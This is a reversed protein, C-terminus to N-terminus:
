GHLGGRRLLGHDLGVLRQHARLTFDVTKTVFEVSKARVVLGSPVRDFPLALLLRFQNLGECGLSVLELFLVLPPVALELLLDGHELSEVFGGNLVASTQSVFCFAALAVQRRKDLVLAALLGLQEVLVARLRLCEQALLALLDLGQAGKEFRGVCTLLRQRCFQVVHLLAADLELRGHQLPLRLQHVLARHVLLLQLLALSRVAHLESANLFRLLLALTLQAGCNVTQAACFVLQRFRESVGRRLKLGLAHRVGRLALLRAALVLTLKVIGHTLKAVGLRPAVLQLLLRLVLNLAHRALGLFHNRREAFFQLCDALLLLIRELLRADRLLAHHGLVLGTQLLHLQELVGHTLLKAFLALHPLLNLATTLGGYQLKVLRLGLDQTQVALGLARLDFGTLRLTLVLLLVVM